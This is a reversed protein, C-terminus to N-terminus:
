WQTRHTAAVRREEAQKKSRLVTEVFVAVRAWCKSDRLMLEVITDPTIIAGLESELAEREISWKRCHFFTHQADDLSWDCHAFDPQAVKDM